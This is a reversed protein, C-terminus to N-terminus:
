RYTSAHLHAPLTHTPTRLWWTCVGDLRGLRRGPHAARPPRSCEQFRRSSVQKVIFITQSLILSILLLVVVTVVIGIIAGSSDAM